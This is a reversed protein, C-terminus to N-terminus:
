YMKIPLQNQQTGDKASEEFLVLHLTTDPNPKSSSIRFSFNGWAPAGQDTTEFGSKLINHGDEISWGFTAEFVRAQGKVDFTTDSIKTISVDKFIKNSLNESVKPASNDFKITSTDVANVTKKAERQCSVFVLTLLSYYFWKM